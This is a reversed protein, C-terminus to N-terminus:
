ALRDAVLTIYGKIDHWSDHLNPNGNLIRGIKTATMELSEKMDAPLAECNPSNRM